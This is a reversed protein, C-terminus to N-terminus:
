AHQFTCNRFHRSNAISTITPQSILSFTTLNKPSPNNSSSTKRQSRSANYIYFFGSDVFIKM